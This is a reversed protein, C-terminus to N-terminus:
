IIMIFFVFVLDGFFKIVIKKKKILIYNLFMLWKSLIWWIYKYIFYINLIDIWEWKWKYFVNLIRIELYVLEM